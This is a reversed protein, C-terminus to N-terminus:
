SLIIIPYRKSSLKICEKAMKRFKEESFTWKWDVTDKLDVVVDNPSILSLESPHEGKINIWSSSFLSKSYIYKLNKLYESSEFEEKSIRRIYKSNKRYNVFYNKYLPNFYSIDDIEDNISTSFTVIPKDTLNSNVCDKVVKRLKERYFTWKEGIADKLNDVIDSLNIFHGLWPHEKRSNVWSYSFISFTFIYRLDKLYQDSGIEEDTMENIYKDGNKGTLSTEKWICEDKKDDDEDSYLFTPLNDLGPYNDFKLGRRSNGIVYNKAMEKLRENFFIWKGDIADKINDVIDKPYIASFNSPHEGKLNVWSSTINVSNNVFRRDRLNSDSGIEEDTMTEISNKIKLLKRRYEKSKKM